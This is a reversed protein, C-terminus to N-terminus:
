LEWIPEPSVFTSLWADESVCGLWALGCHKKVCRADLGSALWHTPPFVTCRATQDAHVAGLGGCSDSTRSSRVLSKQALVTKCHRLGSCWGTPGSFVGRKVPVCEDFLLVCRLGICTELATETARQHWSSGHCGTYLWGYTLCSSPSGWHLEQCVAM